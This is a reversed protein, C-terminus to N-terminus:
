VPLKDPSIGAPTDKAIENKLLTRQCLRCLFDMAQYYSEKAKQIRIEPYGASRMDREVKNWSRFEKHSHM